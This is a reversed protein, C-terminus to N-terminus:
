FFGLLPRLVTMGKIINKDALGYHFVLNKRKKQLLYTEISDDENHAVLLGDFSYKKYLDAFFDYRVERCNAEINSKFITKNQSPSTPLM